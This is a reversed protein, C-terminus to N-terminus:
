TTDISLNRAKYIVPAAVYQRDWFDARIRLTGPLALNKLNRICNPKARKRCDFAHSPEIRIRIRDAVYWGAEIRLRLNSKVSQNAGNKETRIRLWIKNTIQGARFRELTEWSRGGQAKSRQARANTNYVWSINQSFCMGLKPSTGRAEGALKPGSEQTCLKCM